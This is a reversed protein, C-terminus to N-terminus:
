EYYTREKGYLQKMRWAPPAVEMVEDPLGPWMNKDLCEKLIRTAREFKEEGSRIMDADCHVVEVDYPAITHLAIFGFDRHEKGTIRSVGELGMYAQLDYDLSCIQSAFPARGPTHSKLDWLEMQLNITDPRTKCKLGTKADIWFGSQEIIACPDQILRAATGYWGSNLSDELGKCIDLVEPKIPTKGEARIHDQWEAKEKRSGTGFFEPIVIIEKEFLELELLYTHIATGRNWKEAKLDFIDLIEPHDQEYRFQRPSGSLLTSLSSKSYWERAAPDNHYDRLSIRYFGTEIKM